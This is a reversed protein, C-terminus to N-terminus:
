MLVPWITEGRGVRNLRDGGTDHPSLGKLCPLVHKTGDGTGDFGGSPIPFVRICDGAFYGSVRPSVPESERVFGGTTNGAAFPDASLGQEMAGHMDQQWTLVGNGTDNGREILTSSPLPPGCAIKTDPEDNGTSLSQKKEVGTVDYIMTPM